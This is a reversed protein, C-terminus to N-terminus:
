ALRPFYSNVTGRSIRSYKMSQPPARVPLKQYNGRAMSPGSRL